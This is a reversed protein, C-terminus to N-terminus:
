CRVILMEDWRTTYRPSRQDVKMQWPRHIGQAAHFVTNKGFTKNIKDIAQMLAERAPSEENFLDQQKISNPILDLLM